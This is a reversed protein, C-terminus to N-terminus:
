ETTAAAGRARCREELRGLGAVLHPRVALLVVAVVALRLDVGAVALPPVWRALPSLLPRLAGEVPGIFAPDVLPALVQTGFLVLGLAAYIALGWAATVRLAGAALAVAEV